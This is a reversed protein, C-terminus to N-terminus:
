IPHGTPINNRGRCSSAVRRGPRRRITERDVAEACRRTWRCDPVGAHIEHDSLSVGFVSQRQECQASQLVAGGGAASAYGADHLGEDARRQGLAARTKERSQQVYGIDDIIVAHFRRITAELILDRKAMLLMQVLKYAPVFLVVDASRLQGIEELIKRPEPGLGSQAQWQALTKWLVYLSRKRQAGGSVTLMKLDGSLPPEVDLAAWERADPSAFLL